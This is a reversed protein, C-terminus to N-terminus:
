LDLVTVNLGVCGKKDNVFGLMGCWVFCLCCIFWGLIVVLRIVIFDALEM